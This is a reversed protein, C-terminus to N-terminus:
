QASNEDRLSLFPVLLPQREIDNDDGVMDIDTGEGEGEIGDIGGVGMRGEDRRRLRSKMMSTQVLIIVDLFVTGLSGVVWPLSSWMEETSRSRLLVSIGYFSNAAVACLFMSSALGEASHRQANKYIQSLRSTLYLVCSIYGLVSGTKDKWAATFSSTTTSQPTAPPPLSSSSASSLHLTSLSRQSPEIATRLTTTTTTITSHSQRRTSSSFHISNHVFVVTGMMVTAAVATATVPTSSSSGPRPRKERERSSGPVVNRSCSTIGAGVGSSMSAIYVHQTSDDHASTSAAGGGIEDSNTHPHSHPHHQKQLHHQQHHHHRRRRAAVMAYARERRRSAATYYLYQLLLVCDMCIFYQATLIVTEPQDGKLLAGVLNCTDGLLWEALFFPSLAEASQLRYNTILQPLQAVMWCALSCLGLIFGVFDRTDYICDHFYKEIIPNAGADCYPDSM